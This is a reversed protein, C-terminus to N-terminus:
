ANKHHRVLAPRPFRTHSGPGLRCSRAEFQSSCLTCPAHVEHAGPIALDDLRESAGLAQRGSAKGSRRLSTLLRVLRFQYWSAWPRNCCLIAPGNGSGPYIETLAAAVASGALAVVGVVVMGNVVVRCHGDRDYRSAPRRSPYAALLRSLVLGQPYRSARAVVVDGVLLVRRRLRRPQGTAIM